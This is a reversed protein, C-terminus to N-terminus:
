FPSCNQLSFIFIIITLPDNTLRNVISSYHIKLCVKFISCCFKIFLDTVFYPSTVNRCSQRTFCVTSISCNVIYMCHSM